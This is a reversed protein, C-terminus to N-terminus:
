KEQLNQVFHERGDWAHKQTKRSPLSACCRGRSCCSPRRSRLCSFFSQTATTAATSIESRLALTKRFRALFNNSYSQTVDPLAARRPPLSYLPKSAGARAADIFDARSRIPSLSIRPSCPRACASWCGSSQRSSLQPTRVACFALGDRLPVMVTAAIGSRGGADGALKRARQGRGGQWGGGIRSVFPAGCIPWRPARAIETLSYAVCGMRDCPLDRHTGHSVGVDVGDAAGEVPDKGFQGSVPKTVENKFQHRLGNREV